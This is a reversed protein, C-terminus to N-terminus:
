SLKKGLEDMSVQLPTKRIEVDQMMCFVVGFETEKSIGVVIGTGHGNRVLTGMYAINKRETITLEAYENGIIAQTQKRCPKNEGTLNSEDIELDVSQFHFAFRVLMYSIPKVGFFFVM